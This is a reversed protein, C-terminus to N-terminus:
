QVAGAGFGPELAQAFLMLAAWSSQTLCPLLEALMGGHPPLQPAVDNPLQPRSAIPRAAGQTSLAYDTRNKQKCREPTTCTRQLALVASGRPM